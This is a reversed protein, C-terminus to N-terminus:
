LPQWSAPWPRKSLAALRRSLDGSLHIEVEEQCQARTRGFCNKNHLSM